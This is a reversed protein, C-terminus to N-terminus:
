EGKYCHYLRELVSQLTIGVSSLENIICLDQGVTVKDAYEQRVEKLKKDVENLLETVVKEM